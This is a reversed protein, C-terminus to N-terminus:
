SCTTSPGSTASRLCNVLLSSFMYLFFIFLCKFYSECRCVHLILQMTWMNNKVHKLQPIIQDKYSTVTMLLCVILIKRKLILSHVKVVQMNGRWACINRLNEMEWIPIQHSWCCQFTKPLAGTQIQGAAKPVLNCHVSVLSYCYMSYYYFIIRIINRQLVFEALHFQRGEYESWCLHGPWSFKGMM